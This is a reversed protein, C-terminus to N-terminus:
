KPRKREETMQIKPLNIMKPFQFKYDFIECGQLSQENRVLRADFFEKGYPQSYYLIRDLAMDYIYVEDTLSSTEWMWPWMYLKVSLPIVYDKVAEEFCMFDCCEFITDPLDFINELSMIGCLYHSDIYFDKKYM